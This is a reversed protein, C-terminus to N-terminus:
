HTLPVITLGWPGQGAPVRRIERNSALDIVSIDNSPGNASFLYKGDPSLALGWPRTGVKITALVAYSHADLVAVSGSRGGSLYLRNGDSAVKVKMPRVGLPLDVTKLVRPSASNRVVNLKEKSESPIFALSGDPLFDVSRPRPPVMFHVVVHYSRTDIVYVDGSTECTVYFRSGDPTVGVGEPEGGVPIIHEIKGSAINLVSSAKIDENSIYIRSGDRSLAFEEPDSGAHLKGVLRRSAVSVVGIGDASKDAKAESDDDDEAKSYKKLIPNGQADLPPPGEIPTGSLAVYVSKGDPSVHVGRPRKGVPITALVKFDSGAIVTLDGSRENSVFIEYPDAAHVAMSVLSCFALSCLALGLRVSACLRQHIRFM